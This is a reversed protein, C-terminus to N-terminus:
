YFQATNRVRAPCLVHLGRKHQAGSPVRSFDVHVERQAVALLIHMKPPLRLYWNTAANELPIILSKALTAEDGGASAIATEYCM